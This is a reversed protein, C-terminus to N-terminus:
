MPRSYILEQPSIGSTVAAIYHVDSMILCLQIICWLVTCYCRSISIIPCIYQVIFIFVIIRLHIIKGILVEEM